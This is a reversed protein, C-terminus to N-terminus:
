LRLHYNLHTHPHIPTVHCNKKDGNTQTIKRPKHSFSSVCLASICIHVYVYIRPQYGGRHNPMVIVRCQWPFVTVDPKIIAYKYIHVNYVRERIYIHSRVYPPAIYFLTSSFLIFKGAIQKRQEKKGRENRDHDGCSKHIVYSRYINICIHTHTFICKRIHAYLHAHKCIERTRINNETSV